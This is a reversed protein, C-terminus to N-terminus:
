RLRHQRRREEEEGLLLNVSGDGLDQFSRLPRTALYPEVWHIVNALLMDKATRSRWFHDGPLEKATLHGEGRAELAGAWDRYKGVGTFQDEDGYLLLVDGREVRQELALTFSSSRFLTLAWLVSQPYSILLHRTRISAVAKSAALCGNSYGVCLLEADNGTVFPLLVHDIM